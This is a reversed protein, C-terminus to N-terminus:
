QGFRVLALGRDVIWLGRGRGAVCAGVARAQGASREDLWAVTIQIQGARGHGTTGTYRTDVAKRASAVLVKTGGHTVPGAEAQQASSHLTGLSPRARRGMKAREWGVVVVWSWSGELGMWGDLSESIGVMWGDSLDRYTWREREREGLLGLRMRWM